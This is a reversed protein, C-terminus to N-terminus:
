AYNLKQKKIFKSLLISQQKLHDFQKLYQQNIDHDNTIIINEQNQEQAMSTFNFSGTSLFHQDDLNKACCMFKHHFIGYKSKNQFVYTSIGANNLEYIKTHPCTELHKQDVILEVQVGRKKAQMLANAIQNETFFYIAMKIAQQENNILGVITKRIDDQPSFLARLILGNKPILIQSLFRKELGTHTAPIVFLLLITCSLIFLYISIKKLKIM